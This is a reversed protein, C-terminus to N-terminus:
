GKRPEQTPDHLLRAKGLGWALLAGGLEAQTEDDRALEVVSKLVIGYVDDPFAREDFPDRAVPPVGAGRLVETAEYRLSRIVELPTARQVRPEQEALVALERAVRAAARTGAAHAAAITQARATDDIGGWADLLTTVARVVWDGGLDHVAGILRASGQAMLEGAELRRPDDDHTAM